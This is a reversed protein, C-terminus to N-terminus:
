LQISAQQLSVPLITQCAVYFHLQTCSEDDEATAWQQAALTFPKSPFPVAVVVAKKHNSDAEASRGAQRACAMYVMWDDGALTDCCEQATAFIRVTVSQGNSSLM